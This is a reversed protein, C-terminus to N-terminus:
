LFWNKAIASADEPKTNEIKKLWEKKRANAGPMNM